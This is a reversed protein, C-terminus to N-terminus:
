IEGVKNRHVSIWTQLTEISMWETNNDSTYTFDEHVKLGLGIRSPDAYWNHIAPLIKYHDEYAFTYTSDELGIMQEHTKEGPRIGIIKLEAEPAVARALDLIRM